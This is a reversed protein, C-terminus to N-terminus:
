DLNILAEDLYKTWAKIAKYNHTDLDFKIDSRAELGSDSSRRELSIKDVFDEVNACFVIPYNRFVEHLEPIDRAFIKIGLSLAELIVLPKGEFISTILLYDEQRVFSWPNQQFGKFEIDLNREVSTQQLDQRLRGDGIVLAPIDLQSQIELFMDPCKQNELRGIFILRPESDIEDNNPNLVQKPILNELVTCCTSPERWVNIKPSISVFSADSQKLLWRILRGFIRRGAWPLSSHEVVITKYKGLLMAAFLEPLDCNVILVDPDINKLTKKFRFFSGLTHCFKGLHRRGIDIENELNKPHVTPPCSNIGILIASYKGLNLGQNLAAMANEAGGGRLSNVAIAVKPNM